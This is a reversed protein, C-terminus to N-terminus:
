LILGDGVYVISLGMNYLQPPVREMGAAGSPYCQSEAYVGVEERYTAVSGHPIHVSGRADYTSAPAGM